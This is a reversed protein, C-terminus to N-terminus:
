VVKLMSATVNWRGDRGADVEVMKIKVKTVIGTIPRGTRSQTWIVKAGVTLKSAAARVKARTKEKVMSVIVRNLAILEDISAANLKDFSIM